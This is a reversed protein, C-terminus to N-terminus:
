YKAGALDLAYISNILDDDRWIHASSIGGRLMTLAHCKAHTDGVAMVKMVICLAGDPRHLRIEYVASM